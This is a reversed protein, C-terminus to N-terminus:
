IEICYMYKQTIKKIDITSYGFKSWFKYFLTHAKDYNNGESLIVLNYTNNVMYDFVLRVTIARLIDYLYDVNKHYPRLLDIDRKSLGFYWSAKELYSIADPKPIEIGYHNYTAFTSFYEMLFYLARRQEETLVDYPPQPRKKKTFLGM